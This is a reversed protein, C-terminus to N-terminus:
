ENEEDEEREDLVDIILVGVTGITGPITFNIEKTIFLETLLLIVLLVTFLITRSFKTIIM